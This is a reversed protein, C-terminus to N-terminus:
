PPSVGREGSLGWHDPFRTAPFVARAEALLAAWEPPRYRDSLHFLVLEGVGARKALEAAQTATMHHNRGALDADAHRYQSECVVLDCGKLPGALRDAAAGDLLFDTLYAASSGPTEVVLLRRLEDARFTQGGADISESPDAADKLRQVWKGPRLGLEAMRAVNVNGRAKERVLFALVPTRHDMTYAEVTYGVGECLMPARPSEGAHHTVEFAEAVRFGRVTVRQESVDVVTWAAPTDDLLNWLVGRFRHQIIRATEPPGWIMPPTPRDYTQRFLGDFGAVHDLHLHSFFVHDTARVAAPSLQDLCDAGCDFLLREVAQGSDITVFLANDRGPQGLVQATLTMPPHYGSPGPYVGREGGRTKRAAFGPANFRAALSM